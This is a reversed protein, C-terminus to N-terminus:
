RVQHGTREGGARQGRQREAGTQQPRPTLTGQLARLDRIQPVSQGTNLRRQHGLDLMEGDLPDRGDGPLQRMRPHGHRSRRLRLEDTRREPDGELVHEGGQTRFEGRLAGTDVGGRLGPHAPGGPLDLGRQVAQLVSQARELLPIVVRLQRLGQEHQVVLVLLRQAPRLDRRDHASGPDPEGTLVRVEDLRHGAPLGPEDSVVPHPHVVVEFGTGRQDRVGDFRDRDDDGLEEVVRQPVGGRVGLDHDVQLVDMVADADGDVVRAHAHGRVFALVGPPRHGTGVRDQEGVQAVRRAHPEGRDAAEGPLEVETDVHGRGGRVATDARDQPDVAVEEAPDVGLPLRGRRAGRAGGARGGSGGARGRGGRGVGVAGFVVFPGRGVHGSVLGQGVGASERSPAATRRDGGRVRPVGTGGLVSPGGRRPRLPARLLGGGREARELGARGGRAGRTVAGSGDYVFLGRSRSRRHAVEILLVM